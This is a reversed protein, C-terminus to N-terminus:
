SRCFTIPGPNPSNGDKAKMYMSPPISTRNSQVKRGKHHEPIGLPCISNGNGRDSTAAASRGSITVIKGRLKQIKGPNPPNADNTKMCMSPPISATDSNPNETGQSPLATGGASFLGNATGCRGRIADLTKMGAGGGRKQRTERSALMKRSPISPIM